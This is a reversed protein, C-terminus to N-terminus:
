SCMCARGHVLSTWPLGHRRRRGGPTLCSLRAPTLGTPLRAGQEFGERNSLSCGSVSQEDFHSWGRRLYTHTVSFQGWVGRGWEVHIYLYEWMWATSNMLFLFINCFLLCAVAVIRESICIYVVLLCSVYSFLIYKILILCTLVETYGPSTLCDLLYGTWCPQIASCGSTCGLPLFLVMVTVVHVNEVLESACGAENALLSTTSGQCQRSPLM